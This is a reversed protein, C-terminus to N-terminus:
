PGCGFSGFSLDVMGGVFHGGLFIFVLTQLDSLSFCFRHHFGVPWFHVGFRISFCGIIVFFFVFVWSM